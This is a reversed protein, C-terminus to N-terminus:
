VGRFRFRDKPSGQRGTTLNTVDYTTQEKTRRLSGGFSDHVRINDVRVTTLRGSVKARYLGGVKIEHKKVKSAGKRDNEM